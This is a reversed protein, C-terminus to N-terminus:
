MEALFKGAKESAEEFSSHLLFASISSLLEKTGKAWAYKNLEELAERAPKKKYMDCAEQIIILKERLLDLNEDIAEHAEEPSLRGAVERLDELFAPTKVRINEMDKNEGAQELRDATQSLINKGINALASKMGHVNITYLSYDKPEWEPKELLKDLVDIAKATDRLFSDMLATSPEGQPRLSHKAAKIVEEPYKDRILRMLYSNMTVIDIPKSIFGNFGNNMFLESQGMIANATLAVIPKDYGTALILKATEIGDLDPMQHDMFIIDYVKGSKVLNIAEFGSIATDVALGYPMLLGKAVFLNSEMDDVILVKGYPLPEYYLNHRKHFARQSVHFSQLNEVVEAGLVEDSDVKQPLRVYFTSGVDPASEATITGGMMNILKNTINMGLGTGEIMRNSEQNYRVYEGDFLTTLQEQTMGQGTDHIKVTFVDGDNGRDIGFVATVDGNDTYKFANSLLNNLVQKIRVEDGVLITPINKDIKLTFNVNKGGLHMLNLQMTDFILSAVEYPKFYIEMKGAEVKSLDLIDNIIALLINSSARIQLLAEETEPPHGIKQLEINTVGMIVNMPTRIEHSMRALFQSKARSEEEAIDIRKMEAIMAKIERLDRIYSAIIPQGKHKLYSLSVECPIFEGNVSQHIYELRTVQSTSIWDLSAPAGKQNGHPTVEPFIMKYRKIADEKDEFGFLKLAALNCDLVTVDEKVLFCAVPTSDLMLMAREDAERLQEMAAKVESLDHYYAVIRPISNITVRVLRVECPLPEGDIRKFEDEYRSYGDELAQHFFFSSLHDDKWATKVRYMYEEKDVFGFMEAIQENCDVLDMRSNWMEVGLPTTSLLVESIERSEREKEKVAYVDTLDRSYSVVVFSGKHEMRVFYTETPVLTGDAKQRLFERNTSGKDFAEQIYEKFLRKSSRGNPQIPPMLRYFNRCYAEKSTLNFKKVAVLNCDIIDLNSDFFNVTVPSADLMIQGREVDDFEHAIHIM